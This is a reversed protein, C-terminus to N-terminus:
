TTAQKRRSSSTRATPLRSTTCARWTTPMGHRARGAGFWLGLEGRRYLNADRQQQPHDGDARSRREASRRQHKFISRRHVCQRRLRHQEYAARQEPHRQCSEPPCPGILEFLQQRVVVLGDHGPQAGGAVPRRPKGGRQEPCQQLEARLQRRGYHQRDKRGPEGGGHHEGRVNVTVTGLLNSIDGALDIGPTQCSAYNSPHPDNANFTNTIIIAPESRAAPCTSRAAASVGTVPVRPSAGLNDSTLANYNFLVQGGANDPITIGEIRLYDPSNNTITVAVDGSADLTGNVVLASGNVNITGEQAFINNVTIYPVVYSTLYATSGAGNSTSLGLQQMEQGVMNAQAQYAGGATTGAYVQALGSWYNFEMMLDNAESEESDTFTIGPSQTAVSGDENITLTQEDQIGTEVTGNVTVTGNTTITQTGGQMTDPIPTGGLASNIAGALATMWNKGTGYATVLDTGLTEAILNADKATELDSGAGIVVTNNQAVEGHSTLESIPIVSANLEDGHSTVNFYNETGVANKGALLNLNGLATVNTNTGVSVADNEHMSADGDISAASALGYTHAKPEVDLIGQTYAELDFDGVTSITDNNGISAAATPPSNQSTDQNVLIESVVGTGDIVGGADVDVSDYAEVDNYASVVFDGPDSVSGVVAITEYNGITATTNNAINTISQAASGALVGGSGAQVDWEGAGTPVMNKLTTSTATM